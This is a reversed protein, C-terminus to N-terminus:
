RALSVWILDLKARTIAVYEINLEEDSPPKPEEGVQPKHRAFTEKLLYVTDAELGKVKHVTSLLVGSTGPALIATLLKKIGQPEAHNLVAKLMEAQEVIRDAYATAGAREARKTETHLWEALSAQFRERSSLDLKSDLLIFLPDLMEEGANLQFKCGLRYINLACDLLMANNRSLVFTHAAHTPGHVIACDKIAEVMMKLNMLEVSGEPADPAAQLSPVLAQAEEVVAQSCRWTMTLPLCETALDEKAIKWADVGLAGRFGYITQRLDGVGIFRGTKPVMLKRILAFQPPSIDQLEDVLVAQYRAPAALDLALPAWVMDCFDIAKRGALDCSAVYAQRAVDCVTGTDDADQFVEYNLGVGEALKLWDKAAKVPDPIDLVTEKIQRVLKSAARKIKFPYGRDKTVQNVLDSTADSSITLHSFHKRVISLGLAHFTKVVFVNGKPVPPLKALFEEAIRKNFAVVLVSRSPIVRMAERLVTSKGTGALAEVVLNTKTDRVTDIITRQEPTL